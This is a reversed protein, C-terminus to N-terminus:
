EVRIKKTKPTNAKPVTVSLIGNRLSARVADQDVRTSFTFTRNFDGMSREAVLYKYSPEPKTEPVKSETAEVSAYDYEDDDNDEEVTAQHSKSSSPGENEVAENSTTSYNREVHGKIVLTYPDSFEIEVDRQDLGPLEGDLFFSNETERVDFSPSFSRLRSKQQRQCRKTNDSRYADFDDLLRFISAVEGTPFRSIFAM